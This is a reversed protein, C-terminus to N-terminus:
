TFFSLVRYGLIVLLIVDAVCVVIKWIVGVPIVAVFFLSFLIILFLILNLSVINRWILGFSNIFNDNEFNGDFKCAFSLCDTLVESLCCVM